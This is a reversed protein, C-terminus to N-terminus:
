TRMRRMAEEVTPAVDFRNRLRTIELIKQVGEDCAALAFRGMMQECRTKAALLMELAESTVFTCGTLDLILDVAGRNDISDSVVTVTAAVRDGDLDGDPTVVTIGDFQECTLAM